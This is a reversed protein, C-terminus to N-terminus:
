KQMDSDHREERRGKRGEEPNSNITGKSSGTLIYKAMLNTEKNTGTDSDSGEGGDELGDEVPLLSPVLGEAELLDVEVPETGGHMGKLPEPIEEDVNFSLERAPPDLKLYSFYNQSPHSWIM